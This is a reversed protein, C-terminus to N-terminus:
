TFETKLEYKGKINKDLLNGSISSSADKNGKINM